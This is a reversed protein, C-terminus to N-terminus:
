SVNKYLTVPVPGFPLEPEFEEQARLYTDVSSFIPTLPVLLGEYPFGDDGVFKVTPPSVLINLTSNPQAGRLGSLAALLQDLLLGIVSRRMGYKVELRAILCLM